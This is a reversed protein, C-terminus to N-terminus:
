EIRTSDTKIKGFYVNLGTGVAILLIFGGISKISIEFALNSGIFGCIEALLAFSALIVCFLNCPRKHKEWDCAVVFLILTAVFGDWLNVGFFFYLLGALVCPIGMAAFCVATNKLVAKM